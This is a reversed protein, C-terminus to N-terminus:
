RRDGATRDQDFRGVEHMPTTKGPGPLPPRPFAAIARTMDM